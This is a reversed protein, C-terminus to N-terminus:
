WGPRNWCFTKLNHNVFYIRGSSPDLEQAWGPPLPREGKAHSQVVGGMRERELPRPAPPSRAHAASAPGSHVAMSLAAPRQEMMYVPQAQAARVAAPDPGAVSLPRNRLLTLTIQYDERHVTRRLTIQVESGEPGAIMDIIDAIPRGESSVGNVALLLDGVLLDGNAAAQGASGLPHVEKIVYSRTGPDLLFSM